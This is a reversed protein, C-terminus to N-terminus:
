TPLFPIRNSPRSSRPVATSGQRGRALTTALDFRFGDVHCVEVWYRLSDMVLQLVRPHTLNLANGVGTFDDYYRPQDPLLWYYSTNDIGRLSLTSRSPAKAPQTTSLTSFSRLAPTMCGHWPRASRTWHIARRTAPSRHLTHSRTTAGITSSAVCVLHRDDLFSHIPLLEVATVGLNKLHTVM